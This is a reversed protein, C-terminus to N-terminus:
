PHTRTKWPHSLAKRNTGAGHDRDPSKWKQEQALLNLDKDLLDLRIKCQTMMRLSHTQSHPATAQSISMWTVMKFTQSNLVTEEEDVHRLLTLILHDGHGLYTRSISTKTMSSTPCTQCHVTSSTALTKSRPSRTMRQGTTGMGSYSAPRM